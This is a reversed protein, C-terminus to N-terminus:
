EKNDLEEWGIAKSWSLTYFYDTWEIKSSLSPIFMGIGSYRDADIKFDDNISGDGWKIVYDPICSKAVVLNSIVDELGEPVDGGNVLSFADVVDYLLNGYGIGERGYQQIDYSPAFDIKKTHLENKVWLLLNEIYSCDYVAVTGWSKENRCHNIYLDCVRQFDIEKEYLLQMVDVYPFGAAPIEQPSAICYKVIDRIEYCVEASGMMCADFLLYDIEEEMFVEKLVNAFHPISISNKNDDGFAKSEVSNGELWNTAHSGFVLGFSKSSAMEKMKTLITVMTTPDTSNFNYFNGNKSAFTYKDAQAIINKINVDAGVLAKQGNVNGHSDSMFELITPGPLLADNAYPRYFVLLKCTDACNVMGTYMGVINDKLDNDLPYGGNNSVLYALITRNNYIKREPQPIEDGCSMLVFASVILFLFKKM